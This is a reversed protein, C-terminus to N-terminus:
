ACSHCIMCYMHTSRSNKKFDLYLYAKVQSVEHAPAMLSEYMPQMENMTSYDETFM